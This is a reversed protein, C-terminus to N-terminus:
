PLEFIMIRNREDQEEFLDTCDIEDYFSLADVEMLYAIYESQPYYFFLFIQRPSEQYSKLIQQMTGKLIEVSFPNFFFIRDVDSPVPYGTASGQVIHVDLSRLPHFKQYATVNCLAEKYFVNIIEIGISRCGTVHSLYIPVRAKGCGYDLVLDSAEIHGSQILRDLVPYSTAEYPYLNPDSFSDNRGTTEIHLQADTLYDDFAAKM